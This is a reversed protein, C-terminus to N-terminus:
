KVKIVKTEPKVVEKKKLDITLIGNEYKADVKETEVEEPHFIM